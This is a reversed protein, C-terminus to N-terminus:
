VAIWQEYKIVNKYIEKVNKEEFIKLNNPIPTINTKIVKM